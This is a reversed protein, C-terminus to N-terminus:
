FILFFFFNFVGMSLRIQGVPFQTLFDAYM